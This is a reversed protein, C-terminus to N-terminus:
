QPTSSSCGTPKTPRAASSSISTSASAAAAGTPASWSGATVTEVGDPTALQATVLGSEVAFDTLETGLEVRGGLTELRAHLARATSYQPILWTDPYPVAATREGKAMMRWPIAVAGLRIGMPPYPSGQELIAPLVGLDDLIELTRPRHAQLAGEHRGVVFRSDPQLDRDLQGGM